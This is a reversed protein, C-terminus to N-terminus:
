ISQTSDIEVLFSTSFDRRQGRKVMQTCDITGCAGLADLSVKAFSPFAAAQFHVVKAGVIAQRVSFLCYALLLLPRHVSISGFRIVGHLM